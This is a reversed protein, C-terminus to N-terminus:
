GHHVDYDVIAVRSVDQFSRLAHQAAIAINNFVCYGMGKDRVAHHGPPRLLADAVISLNSVHAHADAASAATLVLQRNQIVSSSEATYCCM